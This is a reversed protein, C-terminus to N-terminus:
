WDATARERRYDSLATRCLDCDCGENAMRVTGHQAPPRRDGAPQAARSTRSAPAPATAAAPAPVAAKKTAKTTAPTETSKAKPATRQAVTNESRRAAFRTPLNTM